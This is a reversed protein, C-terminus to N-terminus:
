CKLSYAPIMLLPSIKGYKDNGALMSQLSLAVSTINHVPSWGAGLLDLCVHGNGYIHPHVPIGKLAIGDKPDTGSAVVKPSSATGEGSATEASESPSTTASSKRHLLSRFKSTKITPSDTSPASSTPSADNLERKRAKLLAPVDQDADGAEPNVFQVWPCEIPYQPSFRFRLRFTQNAYLENGFVQLDLFLQSLNAENLLDTVLSIGPPADKALIAIDKKLRSQVPM